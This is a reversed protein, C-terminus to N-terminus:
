GSRLIKKIKKMRKHVAVQSCGWMRAVDSQRYGEMAILTILELDAASLTRLQRYLEEDEITEVWAYRDSAQGQEFAVSLAAFKRFLTSRGEEDYPSEEPLSQTHDSYVRRSCFWGWDFAKMQAIAAESMGAAVYEKHLQEWERDFMRKERAYNFSM